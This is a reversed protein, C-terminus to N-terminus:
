GWIVSLVVGDKVNDDISQLGFYFVYERAHFGNLQSIM